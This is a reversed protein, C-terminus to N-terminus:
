MVPGWHSYRHDPTVLALIRTIIDKIGADWTHGATLRLRLQGIRDGSKRVWHIATDGGVSPHDPPRTVGNALAYR